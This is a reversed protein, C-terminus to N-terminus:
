EQYEDYNQECWEECSLFFESIRKELAHAFTRANDIESAARDLYGLFEQIESLMYRLESQSM